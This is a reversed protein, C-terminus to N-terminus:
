IKINRNMATIRLEDWIDRTLKSLPRLHLKEDSIYNGFIIEKIEDPDKFLKENGIKYSNLLEGMKLDSYMYAKKILEGVIAKHFQANELIHFIDHNNKIRRDDPHRNDTSEITIQFDKKGELFEISDVGIRFVRLKDSGEIFPHINDEITFEKIHKYRSNCTLCSPVLNYFSVALYPYDSQSFFHDFDPRAVGGDDGSVALTYNMNCYLCVTVGLDECHKYALDKNSSFGSYNFIKKIEDSFRKKISKIELSNKDNEQAKWRSYVIVEFSKNVMKIIDRLKSPQGTLLEPMQSQLDTYFQREHTGAPLSDIKQQLNNTISFEKELMQSFNLALADLEPITKGIKIM